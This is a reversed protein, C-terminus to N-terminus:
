HIPLPNTLDVPASLDQWGASELLAVVDTHAPTLAATTIIRMARSMYTDSVKLESLPSQRQIRFTEEPQWEVDARAFRIRSAGPQYIFEILLTYPQGPERTADTEQLITQKVEDLEERYRRSDEAGPKGDPWRESERAIIERIGKRFSPTHLLTQVCAADEWRILRVEGHVSAPSPILAAAVREGTGEGRVASGGSMVAVVIALSLRAAWRRHIRNDTIPDRPANQYLM